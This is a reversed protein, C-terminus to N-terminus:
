GALAAFRQLYLPWGGSGSVGSRLNEWGDGHRNLHRHELDVRTRNDGLPTFTVEIESCRDHDTEIQWQPSIDWTIVFRNPPEFALVRSWRSETGDELRDYLFGGVRPEFVSEVVASTQPNHDHPKIKDWQEHFITFAHDIPVAIEIQHRIAATATTETMIM